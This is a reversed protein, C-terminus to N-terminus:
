NVKNHCTKCLYYIKGENIAKILERIKTPYIEHHIQLDYVSNCNRCVRNMKYKDQWGFYGKKNLLISTVRRSHYKSKNNKYCKRMLENFREPKNKRFKDIARKSWIKVKDPNNSQYEKIKQRLISKNNNYYKKCRKKNLIRCKECTKFKSNNIEHCKKCYSDGKPEQIISPLEITVFKPINKLNKVITSPITVSFQNNKKNIILDRKLRM